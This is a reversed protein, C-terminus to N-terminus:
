NRCFTENFGSSREIFPSLPVSPSVERTATRVLRHQLTALASVRPLIECTRGAPFKWVAIRGRPPLPPSNLFLVSFSSSSSFSSTTITTVSSSSSSSPTPLPSLIYRQLKDANLWNLHRMAAFSEGGAPRDIGNGGLRAVAVIGNFLKSPFPWIQVASKRMGDASLSHGLSKSPDFVVKYLSGSSHFQFERSKLSNREIAINRARTIKNFLARM